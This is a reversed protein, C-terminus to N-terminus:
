YLALLYRVSMAKAGGGQWTGNNVLNSCNDCFHGQVYLIDKYTKTVIIITGKKYKKM